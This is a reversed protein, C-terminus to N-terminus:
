AAPKEEKPVAEELIARAASRVDADHPDNLLPALIKRADDKKGTSVLHHALSFRLSEVQPALDLARRLGDVALDTPPIGQRSFSNFYEYLAYPDDPNARNARVILKRIAIWGSPDSDKGMRATAIRAARLLAASDTPQLALLADNAKGAADLNKADLEGEALFELAQASAPFRDANRRADAVFAAVEEASRSGQRYRILLPVMAADDTGLPTVTVRPTLFTAGKISLYSMKSAKLYKNADRQLTEIDGFAKAAADEPKMGASFDHLYADLQGKREPAFQLYHTLLWSTGYFMDTDRESLKGTETAFMRKLPFLDFASLAYARHYAPKGIGITGDKAFDATSYFEAFGEVFWGPYGTAFYQLMFHHAYEHFLVIQPSLDFTGGHGGTSKPVVAYPGFFNANYYGAVNRAHKGMTREVQDTNAVIFITLKSTELTRNSALRKHLLADFREVRATFEEIQEPRMDGYVTFNPSDARAWAAEASIPRLLILLSIFIRRVM